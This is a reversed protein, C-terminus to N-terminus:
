SLKMKNSVKELVNRIHRFYFYDKIYSHINSDCCETENFECEDFFKFKIGFLFSTNTNYIVKINEKNLNESRERMFKANIINFVGFVLKWWIKM